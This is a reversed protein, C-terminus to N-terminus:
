RYASDAQMRIHIWSHVYKVFFNRRGGGHRSQSSSYIGKAKRIAQNNAKSFGANETNAIIHIEPFLKQVMEVSGDSSNNDVVFVEAEMGAWRRAYANFANSCSIGSM